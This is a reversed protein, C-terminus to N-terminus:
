SRRSRISQAARGPLNSRVVGRHRGDCHKVEPFVVKPVHRVHETKVLPGAGQGLRGVSRPRFGRSGM